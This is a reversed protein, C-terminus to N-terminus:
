IKLEDLTGTIEKNELQRQVLQAYVGSQALLEQHTGQEAVKGGSIVAVCDADKITSLRHAVVIVTRNAMVRELAEQVLHESESDLASTAEDLLLVRPDLLIARAIAIRQKQGGSLKVGREGVLTDYGEPFQSIFDHANALKAAKEINDQSVNEFGYAINEKISTAFLVPEQSVLSIHAHVSRPDIARIDKGDLTIVGSVPDYFREILSITTSKGGGSPGVLATIKGAQFTMNMDNLVKADPRSPYWFSVDRFIIEGKVNEPLIFDGGSSPISSDRDIYEFVRSTAGVAQMFSGYVGSIGGLGAAITITYLLFSTLVGVTLQGQVVMRAGVWMVIIVSGYGVFWFFGMFLGSLMALYAGMDYTEQIKGSYLDLQHYEQSFSRVTRINGFTEEAVESAAALADQNKKSTERVYKGYVRGGIGVLPAVALMILTLSWSTYFLYILGGLVIAINSVLSAINQTIADKLVTTDSSLRNTLEGTRTVDFMAVEQELLARFLRKRVRAVMREGSLSYLFNQAFGAISGVVVIVVLELVAVKLDNKLQDQSLAPATVAGSADVTPQSKGIADVVIGFYRPIALNALSNLLLSFTALLILWKEPGAQRILRCIGQSNSVKPRSHSSSDSAAGKLPRTPSENSTGSAPPPAVAVDAAHDDLSSRLPKTVSEDDVPADSDNRPRRPSSDEQSRINAFNNNISNVSSAVPPTASVSSSAM